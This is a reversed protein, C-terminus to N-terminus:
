PPDFGVRRGGHGLGRGHRPLPIAETKGARGLHVRLLRNHLFGQSDTALQCGVHESRRLFCLASPIELQWSNSQLSERFRIGCEHRM